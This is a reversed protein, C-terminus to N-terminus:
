VQSRPLAAPFEDADECDRARWDRTRTCTATPAYVFATGGVNGGISRRTTAFTAGNASLPSTPRCMTAPTTTWTLAPSCSMPPGYLGLLSGRGPRSRGASSRDGREGIPTGGAAMGSTLSAAGIHDAAVSVVAAPVTSASRKRCSRGTSRTFGATRPGYRCRSEILRVLVSRFLFYEQETATEYRTQERADARSTGAGFKLM